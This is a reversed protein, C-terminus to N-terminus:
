IVRYSEPWTNNLSSYKIIFINGKYLYNVAARVFDNFCKFDTPYILTIATIIRDLRPWDQGCLRQNRKM